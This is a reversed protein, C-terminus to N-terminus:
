CLLPQAWDHLIMRIESVGLIYIGFDGVAGFCLCKSTIVFSLPWPCPNCACSQSMPNQRECRIGGVYRSALITSLTVKSDELAQLVDDLSGITYVDKMDKYPKVM